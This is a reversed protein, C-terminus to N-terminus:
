MLPFPYTLNFGLGLLYLVHATVDVSGVAADGTKGQQALTDYTPVFRVAVM